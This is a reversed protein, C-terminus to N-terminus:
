VGKVTFPIAFVANGQEEKCPLLEHRIENSLGRGDTIDFALIKALVSPKFIGAEGKGFVVRMPLAKSENFTFAFHM